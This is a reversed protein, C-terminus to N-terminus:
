IDWMYVYCVKAKEYYSWMSNIAESLEASSKKDVCCTDVWAWEHGDRFAVQFFSQVKLFGKSSTRNRRKFDDFTMEDNQWRHSLIAYPPVENFLYEHPILNSTNILWTSLLLM